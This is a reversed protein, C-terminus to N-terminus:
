FDIRSRIDAEFAEIKEKVAVGSDDCASIYFKIKPETGSPRVAIWSSDALTYKLVNAPPLEIGEESSGKQRTQTKFDEVMIVQIDGFKEPTQSRLSSMIENIKETGEMGDMKVSITKEEYHGHEHYLEHIADFLSYGQEKFYATMEAVMVLAQIADKDRVFPQILYGYSEEFGYMFIKSHDTEFEKIKEAIFKFGTLVDITEVGYKDGIVSPLNSSVISKLMVSNKPLSEKLSHAKFIYEVMLAAIQNGSLVEYHGKATRVALGLRDADPDTAILVDADIEKGKDIALKFAAPDEPNPSKVTSFDPDPESQKDVFSVNKFGIQKLAKEGLMQGTGHLPTFVIKLSRGQRDILDQDITVTRLAELYKRDIDNGVFTLLGEKEAKERDLADISLIDTVSRVYTTLDDAEKPPLQGGDEGYVKYGNYEPPNHSATIMIGAAAKLHRVAFSLEPTPRLEEFVYAKIGHAALTLASEVAFEKSMHRSDYAIAVGREKMKEGQEEIFLALGETAQRVTYINMRNTGAGIIGRMGATGFELSTYFADELRSEDEKHKELDKKLSKDLKSYNLWTQYTEKWDM